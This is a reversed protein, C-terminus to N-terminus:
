AQRVRGRIRNELRTEHDVVVPAPNLHHNDDVSSDACASKSSDPPSRGTAALYRCLRAAQDFKSSASIIEWHPSESQASIPKTWRPEALTGSPPFLTSVPDPHRSGKEAKTGGPPFFASTYRDVGVLDSSIECGHWHSNVGSPKRIQNMTVSQRFHLPRDM